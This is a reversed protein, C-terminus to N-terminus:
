ACGTSYKQIRIIPAGFTTEIERGVGRFVASDSMPWEVYGEVQFGAVQPRVRRVEEVGGTDSLSRRM